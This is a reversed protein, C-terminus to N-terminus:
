ATVAVTLLRVGVVGLAVALLRVIWRGEVRSSVAAGLPAGIVVGVALALTVGVTTAYDGQLYHTATAAGSMFVLVFHSTATAVHEPFDFFTTLVPVHVIGGGIGLLSSLFGVGVSLLMALGLNFTYAYSRGSSDTLRREVALPGRALLSLRTQPRLILFLSVVVLSVGMTVQFAGRPIAGVVVAGVVAGPLTAAALWIGSRYDARRQRFYSLSGSASNALVVALSVATVQAPSDRPFLLLLVPVLVFGGGAGILTGYAGIAVGIASLIALGGVTATMVGLKGCFATEPAPAAGRPLRAGLPENGLV